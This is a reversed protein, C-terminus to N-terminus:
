LIERFNLSTPKNCASVTVSPSVNSYVLKAFRRWFCLSYSSDRTSLLVSLSPDIQKTRCDKLLFLLPALHFKSSSTILCRVSCFTYALQFTITCSCFGSKTKRRFPRTWKFRRPRWNLRSSAASIHVDASTIRSVGHKSTTHLTSAVWEIRWNGRWKGDTRWRTGDCRLHLRCLSITYFATIDRKTM